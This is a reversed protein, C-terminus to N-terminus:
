VNKKPSLRTDYSDRLCDGTASLLVSVSYIADESAAFSAVYKFRSIFSIVPISIFSAVKFISLRMLILLFDLKGYFSYVCQYLIDDYVLAPEFDVLLM